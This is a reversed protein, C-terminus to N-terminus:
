IRESLVAFVGRKRSTHTAYQVVSEYSLQPQSNNLVPYRQLLLLSSAVQAAEALMQTSLMLAGAHVGSSSLDLMHRVDPSEAGRRGRCSCLAVIVGRPSVLRM